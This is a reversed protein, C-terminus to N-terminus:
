KQFPTQYNEILIENSYKKDGLVGFSIKVDKWNEKKMSYMKVKYLGYYLYESEISNKLNILLNKDGLWVIGYPFFSGDMVLVNGAPEILKGTFLNMRDFELNENKLRLYFFTKGTDSMMVPKCHYVTLVYDGSPSNAEGCISNNYATLLNFMEFFCMRLGVVIFIFIM